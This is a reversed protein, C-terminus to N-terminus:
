HRTREGSQPAFLLAAGAGITAGVVAGAAFIAIHQWDLEHQHPSSRARPPRALRRASISLERELVRDGADGRRDRMSASSGATASPATRRPRPVKEAYLVPPTRVIEQFFVEPLCVSIQYYRPTM